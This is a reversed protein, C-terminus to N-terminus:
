GCAMAEDECGKPVPALLQFGICALCLPDQLTEFSCAGSEFCSGGICLGLLALDIAADPPLDETCMQFCAPDMNTLCGPLCDLVERCTPPDAGTTPDDTTTSTSTSVDTTTPVMTTEPEVMTTLGTTTTAEGTSTAVVGLAGLDDSVCALSGCGWVVM